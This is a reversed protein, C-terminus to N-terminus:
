RKKLNTSDPKKGVLLSLVEGIFTVVSKIADIVKWFKSM